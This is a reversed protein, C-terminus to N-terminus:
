LSTLHDVSAVFSKVVDIEPIFDRPIACSAFSTDPPVLSDEINCSAAATFAVNNFFTDESILLSIVLDGDTLQLSIESLELAPGSNPLGQIRETHAYFGRFSGSPNQVYVPDTFGILGANVPPFTFDETDLEDVDRRDYVELLEDAAAQVHGVSKNVEDISVIRVSRFIDELPDGFNIGTEPFGFLSDDLGTINQVDPEGWEPPYSFNVEYNIDTFGEWDDPVTPVTEVPEITPEEKPVIPQNVAVPLSQEEPQSRNDRLLLTLTVALAIGLVFIISLLTIFLGKKM